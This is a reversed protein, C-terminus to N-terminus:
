KKCPNRQLKAYPALIKSLEAADNDDIKLFAVRYTAMSLANNSDGFKEMIRSPFGDTKLRLQMGEAAQRSPFKGLVVLNGEQKIRGYKAMIGIRTEDDLAKDLIVWFSDGGSKNEDNRQVSRSAVNQWRSLLGKIRHYDDEKLTVSGGGCTQQPKAEPQQKPAAATAPQAPPKPAAPTAPTAATKSRPPTTATAPTQKNDAQPTTTPTAPPTTTPVAPQQPQTQQIVITRSPEHQQVAIKQLVMKEVITTGFVILNLAVLIAFVWKM